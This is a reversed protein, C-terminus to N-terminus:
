TERTARTIEAAVQRQHLVPTEYRASVVNLRAGLDAAVQEAVGLPHVPDLPGALVTLSAEVPSAPRSPASWPLASLRDAREVARPADFQATLAEAAGPSVECIAAFSPSARWRTRGEAPGYTRLLVAIEDFVDLNPPAPSWAWAPRILVAAAVHLSPRTLLEIAVGAGMSIGVLVLESTRDLVHLLEEVDSGLRAFTLEAADEPLTCAGHARLDPAIVGPVDDGLLALPQRHDAGLGHLLVLTPM